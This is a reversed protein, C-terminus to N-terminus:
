AYGQGSAEVLHLASQILCSVLSHPPADSPLAVVVEVSVTQM